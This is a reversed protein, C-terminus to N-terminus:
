RAVNEAIAVLAIYVIGTIGTLVILGCIAEQIMRKYRPM